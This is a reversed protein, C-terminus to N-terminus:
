PSNDRSADHMRFNDLVRRDDSTHLYKNQNRIHSYLGTYLLYM